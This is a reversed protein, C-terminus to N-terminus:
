KDGRDLSELPTAARTLKDNIARGLGVEPLYEAVIVSLNLRDLKRLCDFFHQAAEKLDGEPSLVFQNQPPIERHKKTFALFGIKEPSIKPLVHQMKELVLPVKPAYHSQLMGPASPKSSSTQAKIAVGLVKEILELPIGGKRLITPEGDIFDIITSEVGVACRGGDLIYPIMDGLQDNVHQATTPSIYGFPNASPAALPFDLRKLLELTLPHNPIRVAVKSLGSTVLDPIKDTKELLLTLPGPWFVKALKKLVPPIELIMDDLKELLDTHLIMPDFAPRNKVRFIESVAVPDLGNGALGYVTETPIAVLKGKKLLQIAHEMNQGIGAM